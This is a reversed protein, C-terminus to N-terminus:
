AKNVLVVPVKKYTKDIEYFSICGVLAAVALGMLIYPSKRTHTNGM